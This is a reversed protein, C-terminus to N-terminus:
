NCHGIITTQTCTLKTPAQVENGNIDLVRYIAQTIRKTGPNNCEDRFNKHAIVKVPNSGNKLTSPKEIFFKENPNKLFSEANPPALQASSDSLYEGEIVTGHAQTMQVTWNKITMSSDPSSCTWSYAGAFSQQALCLIMITVLYKM